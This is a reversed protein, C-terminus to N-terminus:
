LIDNEVEQLWSDDSVDNLEKLIETVLEDSMETDDETYDPVILGMTADEETEFVQLDKGEEQRYWKGRKEYIKM